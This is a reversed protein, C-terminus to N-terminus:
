AKIKSLDVIKLQGIKKFDSVNKTVLALNNHLASAAIVADPL